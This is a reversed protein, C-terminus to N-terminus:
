VKSYTRLVDPSEDDSPGDPRFASARARQRVGIKLTGLPSTRTRPQGIEPRSSRPSPGEYRWGFRNLFPTPRRARTRRAPDLGFFSGCTPGTRFPRVTSCERRTDTEVLGQSLCPSCRYPQCSAIWSGHEVSTSDDSRWRGRPSRGRSANKQRSALSSRLENRKRPTRPSERPSCTRETPPFVIAVTSGYCTVRRRGALHEAYFM